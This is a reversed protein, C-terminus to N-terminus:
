ASLTACGHGRLKYGTCTVGVQVWKIEWQAGNRCEPVQKNRLFIQVLDKDKYGRDRDVDLVASM